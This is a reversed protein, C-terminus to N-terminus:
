PPAVPCPEACPLGLQRATSALLTALGRQPDALVGALASGAPVSVLGQGQGKSASTGRQFLSTRPQGQGPPPALAPLLGTDPHTDFFLAAIAARVVPSEREAAVVGVDGSKSASVEGAAGAVLVPRAWVPGEPDLPPLHLAPHLTANPRRQFLCELSPGAAGWRPSVLVGGHQYLLLLSLLLWRPGAPLVRWVSAALPFHRSVFAAAM